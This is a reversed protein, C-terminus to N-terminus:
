AISFEACKSNDKYTTVFFRKAKEKIVFVVEDRPFIPKSFKAYHITAIEQQLLHAAIDIQLYGPLLPYSPFHAQFVPHSADAFALTYENNNDQQQKHM